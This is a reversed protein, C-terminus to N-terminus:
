KPQGHTVAVAGIVDAPAVQVLGPPELEPPLTELAEWGDPLTVGQVDITWANAAVATVVGRKFESIGPQFCLEARKGRMGAKVFPVLEVLKFAIVDGVAPEGVLPPCSAYDM